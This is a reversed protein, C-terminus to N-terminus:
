ARTYRTTWDIRTTEPSRLAHYVKLSAWELEADRQEDDVERWWALRDPNWRYGRARLLGRAGSPADVAEVLWTPRRERDLLRKLVTTGAALEHDLLHMLATVDVSARHAEYFWGISTCLQTLTRGECGERRWDIGALSCAWACGELGPIRRELFPRDFAANHAVIFHVSSLISYVEGDPISRGTLDAAALGTVRTIEESIPVGPDELWGIPDGTAVIRGSTDAAFTQLALEIVRDKTPDLGTTEVDVCAGRMVATSFAHPEHRRMPRMRRLVRYDRQRDLAEALVEADVPVGVMVPMM